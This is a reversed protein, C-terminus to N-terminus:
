IGANKIIKIKKNDPAQKYEEKSVESVIFMGDFPEGSKIYENIKYTTRYKTVDDQLLFRQAASKGKIYFTRDSLDLYSFDYFYVDLKSANEMLIRECEDTLTFKIFTFKYGHGRPTTEVSHLRKAYGSIRKNVNDRNKLKLMLIKMDSSAIILSRVKNLLKILWDDYTNM